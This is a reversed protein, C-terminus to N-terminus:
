EKTKEFYFEIKDGNWFVLCRGVYAIEGIYEWVTPNSNYYMKHNKMTLDYKDCYKAWRVLSDSDINVLGQGSMLLCQRMLVAPNNRDFDDISVKSFVSGIAVAGVLKLFDRRKM